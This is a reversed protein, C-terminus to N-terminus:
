AGPVSLTSRVVRLVLWLLLLGLLLLSLALWVSTEIQWDGWALLVYGPDRTGTNAWIAGAILGVILYLSLRAM